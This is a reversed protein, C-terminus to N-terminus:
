WAIYVQIGHEEIQKLLMQYNKMPLLFRKDKKSNSRFTLVSLMENVDLRTIEDYRMVEKSFASTFLLQNEEVVIKRNLFIFSVFLAITNPIFIIILYIILDITDVEAIRLIGMSGLIAVIIFMISFFTGMPLLAFILKLLLGPGCENSKNKKFGNIIVVIHVAITIVIGGLMIMEM